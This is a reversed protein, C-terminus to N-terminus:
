SYLFKPCLVWVYSIASTIDPSRAGSAGVSDAASTTGAGVANISANVM